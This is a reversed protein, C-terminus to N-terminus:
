GVSRWIKDVVEEQKGGWNEAELSNEGGAGHPQQSFLLLLTV